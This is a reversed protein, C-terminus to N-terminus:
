RLDDNQFDSPPLDRFARRFTDGPCPRLLQAALGSSLTSDSSSRQMSEAFGTSEMVGFWNKPCFVCGLTDSKETGSCAVNVSTISWDSTSLPVTGVYTAEM